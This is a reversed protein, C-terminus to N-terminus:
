LSVFDIASVKKIYHLKPDNTESIVAQLPDNLRQDLGKRKVNVIKWWGCIIRLFKVTGTVDVHNVDGYKQLATITKDCFVDLCPRVRQREIVKPFISIERLMSQKVLNGSESKFLDKLHRWSAVFKMGCEEFELQGTKETLWLNRINKLLHVFDFLLFKGNTTLWPKDDVTDFQKFFAQNTRNGDCIIAQVQCGAHEILEVNESIMEYLFNSNLKTVPIMKNVFTPGGHLNNIMIGLMTEALINPNNAAKGFITGGHYTLTKKIYVEDHMLVCIKQETTLNTFVQELFISDEKKSLSCTIRTLTRVSPLSYDGKIRHYLARSTTFYGFARVLTEPDYLTKGVMVPAMSKIQQHLIKIKQTEELRQLYMVAEEIASWSSLTVVRNKSLFPIIVKVGMHFTTFHLSEEISILFQPVGSLLKTSQICLNKDNTYSVTPCGFIHNEKIIRNILKDYSIHDLQRFKDMQCQQVSRVTLSTRQTPRPPPPPTSICSLPVGPWVSPPNRPREKGVVQVKPYDAPWHKVCIVSNINVNLDRYPMAKIWMQMDETKKPFRFVKVHYKAKKPDAKRPTYNSTCAPILCKRAM